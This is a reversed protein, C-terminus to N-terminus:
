NNLLRMDVLEGPRLNLEPPVGVVIPLGREQAAGMGRVRLPADFIEIRPGVHSIETQALQRHTGRTRIELKMGVKPELRVPQPIYGIIRDVKPSAIVALITGRVVTADAAFDLKTVYGDIPARLLMPQLQAEALHLREAAVALTARVSASGAESRNPDLERLAVEAANVGASKEKVAQTLREVDRRAIDLDSQSSIAEKFLREQRVLEAEAYQQEARLSALESRQTLWDMQFQALRVRDGSDMGADARIADMEAQIVAVTNSLIQPDSADVVAIVDGQKVPQFLAVELRAVRGPTATVVNATLGEAQGMVLPNALNLGWLWVSLGLVLAFSLVPLVNTRFLHWRQQPPTPIPPLPDLKM